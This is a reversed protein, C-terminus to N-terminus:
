LNLENLERVSRELDAIRKGQRDVQDQLKANDQRLSDSVTREREAEQKAAEYRENEVHPHNLHPPTPPRNRVGPSGGADLSQDQM